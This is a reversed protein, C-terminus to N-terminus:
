KFNQLWEECLKTWNGVPGEAQRIGFGHGGKEFIHMEAPVNAQLIARYFLLSNEPEVTGDDSAHVIFTSPTESTVQLNTSFIYVLSDAPSDGLLNNKSGAHTISDTMSIVPYVLILFDPRASIQDTQDMHEHVKRNYLTGLSSALHGGASFGIVGINASSLGWEIANSRILRIARQADMLPVDNRFAHGEAPLRYKLICATYGLSNLWRAIDVGEKDYSLYSYAGGPCILIASGNPHEPLYIEL